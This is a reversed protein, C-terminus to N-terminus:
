QLTATDRQREVAELVRATLEKEIEV